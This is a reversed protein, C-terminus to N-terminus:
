NAEFQLIELSIQNLVFGQNTIMQSLAVQKSSRFFCRRFKFLHSGITLDSRFPKYKGGEGIKQMKQKLDQNEEMKKGQVINKATECFTFLSFIITTRRLKKIAM